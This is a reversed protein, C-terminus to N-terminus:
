TIKYFHVFGMSFRADTMKNEFFTRLSVSTLM